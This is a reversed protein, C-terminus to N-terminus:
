CRSGNASRAALGCSAGTASAFRTV